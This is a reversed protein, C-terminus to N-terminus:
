ALHWGLMLWIAGYFPIRVDGFHRGIDVLASMSPVDQFGSITIKAPTALKHRVDGLFWGFSVWQWWYSMLFCDWVDIFGDEVSAVNSLLNAWVQLRHKRTGGILMPPWFISFYGARQVPWPTLTSFLHVPDARILLVCPSRPYATCTTFLLFLTRPSPPSATRPTLAPAPTAHSPTSASLIIILFVGSLYLMLGSATIRACILSFVKRFTHAAPSM